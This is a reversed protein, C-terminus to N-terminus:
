FDIYVTPENPLIAKRKPRPFATTIDYLLNGFRQGTTKFFTNLQNILNCYTSKTLQTSLHQNTSTSNNGGNLGVNMNRFYM